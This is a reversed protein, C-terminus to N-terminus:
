IYIYLVGLGKSYQFVSLYGTNLKFMLTNRMKRSTLPHHSTSTSAQLQCRGLWWGWEMRLERGEGVRLGTYPITNVQLDRVRYIFVSGPKDLYYLVSSTIVWMPLVLVKSISILCTPTWLWRLNCLLNFRTQAIHLGTEFCFRWFWNTYEIM